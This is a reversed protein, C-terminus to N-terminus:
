EAVECLEPFGSDVLIVRVQDKLKTPVSEFTQKGLLIRQAFFVSMSDM